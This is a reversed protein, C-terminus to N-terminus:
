KATDRRLPRSPIARPANEDPSVDYSGHDRFVGNLRREWRREDRKRLGSWSAASPPFSGKATKTISIRVGGPTQPSPSFADPMFVRYNSRHSPFAGGVTCPSSSINQPLPGRAVSEGCTFCAINGTSHGLDDLEMELSLHECPPPDVRQKWKARLAEVENRTM